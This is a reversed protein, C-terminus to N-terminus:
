NGQVRTPSLHKRSYFSMNQQLLQINRQLEVLKLNSRGICSANHIELELRLLGFDLTKLANVAGMREFRSGMDELRGAKGM